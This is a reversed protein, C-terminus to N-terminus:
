FNSNKMYKLSYVVKSLSSFFILLSTISNSFILMFESNKNIQLKRTKYYKSSSIEIKMGSEVVWEVSIKYYFKILYKFFKKVFSRRNSLLLVWFAIRITEPDCCPGHVVLM